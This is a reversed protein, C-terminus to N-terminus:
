RALTRLGEANERMITMYDGSQPTNACPRFVSSEIGREELMGVIGEAPSEEWIMAEASYQSLLDDLERWEKETPMQDPEFHVSRADLGYRRILYQYVPHSFLLPRDALETTSSELDSSLDRLDAELDSYRQAFEDRYEPRSISLSEAIAKAQEAALEPDLWTTFAVGKHSHEGQPGHSHVPGEQLPIFQEALGASTDVLKSQPLSALSLWKAYGAGNLLILDAGQYAAVDDASPKWYAPDEGASVPFTVSVRDGGIREAFYQLPYNVTYVSLQNSTEAREPEAIGQPTEKPAQEGGCAVM